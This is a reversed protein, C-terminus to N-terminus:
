QINFAKNKKGYSILTVGDSDYMLINMIVKATSGPTAGPPPPPPVHEDWTWEYTAAALNATNSLKTVWSAGSTSKAKSGSATIYYVDPGSVTFQVHYRIEGGPPYKPPSANSWDTVWVKNITISEKYPVRDYIQDGRAHCGWCVFNLTVDPSQGCVLKGYRSEAISTTETVGDEKYWRFNLAPVKDTTGPSSILEGHRIMPAKVPEACSVIAGGMICPSGHVNHCATCSMASDACEPNTSSCRGDWDSDWCITDRYRDDLHIEHLNKEPSPNEDRFNTAPGFVVTYIHCSFCLKYANPGYDGKRPISMNEALRYGSRYNKLPAEYTRADGDIHPAYTCTEGTTCDTDNICARNKNISCFKSLTAHCGFPLPGSCTIPPEGKIGHGTKNYGYYVNDGMVNPAYVDDIVAPVDDHCTACWNEKGERLKSPWPEPSVKPEYIGNQWNAKAGIVPDNLKLAGPFAGDPSHCDDCTNTYTLTKGDKKFKKYNSSSLHCATFCAETGLMPGKPDTFHTYHSQNGVFRPEFYNTIDDLFHPHCVTCDNGDSHTTTDGAYNHYKTGPDCKGNSDVDTYPEGPDCLGNENYDTLEEEPDWKNNSNADIFLEIPHHCVECAGDLAANNGDALTGPPSDFSTFLVDKSNISTRVWRLNHSPSNNYYGNLFDHCVNCDTVSGGPGGQAKYHGLSYVNGSLFGIAILAILPIFLILYKKYM